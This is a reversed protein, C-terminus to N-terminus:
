TLCNVPDKRHVSLGSPGHPEPEPLRDPSRPLAAARWSFSLGCLMFAMGRRLHQRRLANILSSKGVKPIGIVM